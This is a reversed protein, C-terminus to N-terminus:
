KLFRDLWKMAWELLAPRRTKNNLRIVANTPSSGLSSSESGCEGESLGLSRAAERRNWDTQRLIEMLQERDSLSQPHSALVVMRNLDKESLLVLRELESKLQRM